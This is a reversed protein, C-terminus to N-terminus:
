RGDVSFALLMNGPQGGWLPYGSVVFLKGAAIVPGASDISGGKANPVGNVAHYAHATNYDWLIRGDRTSYARIHGDVAGAFVVGPIVTTPASNAPGCHQRGACAPPSPTYWAVKGTALDLAFIGGGKNPNLDPDDNKQPVLTTDSLPAYVRETDASSGWEIGGLPGGQGIRTQWVIEGNSDPDLATVVSSKQSAILLRKGSPLTQLIAPGGFDSDPGSTPCNSKTQTECNGNYIDKATIQRSWIIKGTKMDLALIADSTDTSPESYNNGTNVYLLGHEPDLTPASWVGAGAPGWLQTGSSSVKTKVPPDSITYTKWVQHGTELDLAVTSGRFRCCEYKVDYSTNEEVSSVPVYITFGYIQPSGSIRAGPFQEVKTKWIQKGTNADFAYVNAALDAFIMLQQNKIVAVSPAARIGAEAHASWYTCGTSANLSHIQGDASGIYIRNGIVAPQAMVMSQGRFAFAWLLKLRPVDSEQFGALKEPRYRTNATDAGWGNWRSTSQLDLAESSSCKGAENESIAQFTKGSVYEAVARKQRTTLVKAQAKMAGHQLSNLVAEASM